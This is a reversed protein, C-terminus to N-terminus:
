GATDSGTTTGNTHTDPVLDFASNTKELVLLSYYRFYVAIPIQLILTLVFLFLLSIVGLVLPVIFGIGDFLAIAPASPIFVALGLVLGVTSVFILVAFGLMLALIWRLVIYVVYQKWEAKLTPWFRRWGEIVGCQELIIVPVIFDITFGFVLGVFLTFLFFLPLLVLSSLVLTAVSVGGVGITWGLLGVVFVPLIGVFLLGIEFLFLRVGFGFWQRFYRRLQITESSVSAVFVFQVVASILGFVVAVVFALVALVVLIFVLDESQIQPYSDIGSPPVPVNATPVTGLFLVIVALRIWRGFEVPFLFGRTIDLSEDLADIAYWSMTHM